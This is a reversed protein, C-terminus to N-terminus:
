RGGGGSGLFSGALREAWQTMDGEDANSLMGAIGGESADPTARELERREEDVVEAVQDESLNRDKKVKGLAGMVLPALMPILSAVQGRDMGSARAASAEVTGRRDGLVHRLIGEGDLARSDTGTTAGSGSGAGSDSDAGGDGGLLGGVASALGRLVGGGGSEGGGGADGAAGGLLSDLQGLLSGDHDQELAQNLSARGEPSDHVNNSIGGILMPVVMSAVRQVTEPDSGVRQALGEITSSDLQNRITDLLEAM